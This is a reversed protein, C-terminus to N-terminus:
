NKSNDKDEKTNLEQAAEKKLEPKDNVFNYTMEIKSNKVREWCQTCSFVFGIIKGDISHPLMFLDKGTGCSICHMFFDERGKKVVGKQM